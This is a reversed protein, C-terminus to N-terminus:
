WRGVRLQFTCARKGRLSYGYQRISNRRASGTEDIWILMSPDYSSIDVMFQIRLREDQQLAVTQVKKRTLGQHKISRCITSIHVWKGCSNFLDEQVEHLFATPKHIFTNLIIHLEFETLLCSPGRTQEVPAVDGTAYFM